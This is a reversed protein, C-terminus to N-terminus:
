RNPLPDTSPAHAERWRRPLPSEARLAHPDHALLQALSHLDDTRTPEAAAERWLALVAALDDQQARRIM